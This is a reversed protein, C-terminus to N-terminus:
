ARARRRGLSFGALGACLLLGAGVAAIAAYRRGTMAVLASLVDQSIPEYAFWGFGTVPETWWLWAGLALLAAALVMLAAPLM